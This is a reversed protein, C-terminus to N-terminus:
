FTLQETGAREDAEEEVLCYEGDNSWSQRLSFYFLVHSEQRIHGSVLLM